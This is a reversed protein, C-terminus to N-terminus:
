IPAHSQATRPIRLRVSSGLDGFRLGRDARGQVTAKGGKLVGIDIPMPLRLRHKTLDEGARGLQTLADDKLRLAANSKRLAVPWAKIVQSALGDDPPDLLAQPAQAGVHDVHQQQVPGIRQSIRLVDGPRERCNM